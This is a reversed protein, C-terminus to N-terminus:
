RHNGGSVIAFLTQPFQISVFCHDPYSVTDGQQDYCKPKLWDPWGDGTETEPETSLCLTGDGSSNRM